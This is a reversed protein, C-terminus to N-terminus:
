HKSGLFITIIQFNLNCICFFLPSNWYLNLVTIQCVCKKLVDFLLLLMCANNKHDMRCLLGFTERFARFLHSFGSWWSWRRSFLWWPTSRRRTRSRFMRFSITMMRNFSFRRFITSRVAWWVRWGASVLWRWWPLFAFSVPAMTGTWWWIVPSPVSSGAWTWCRIWRAATSVWWTWWWGAIQVFVFWWRWINVFNPSHSRRRGWSYRM